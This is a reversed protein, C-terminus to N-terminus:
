TQVHGPSSDSTLAKFLPVIARGANATVELLLGERKILALAKDTLYTMSSIVDRKLNLAPLLLSSPLSSTASERFPISSTSLTRGLGRM